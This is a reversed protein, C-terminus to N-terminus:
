PAGHKNPKMHRPAKSIILSIDNNVRSANLNGLSCTVIAETNHRSDHM